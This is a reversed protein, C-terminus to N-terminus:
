SAVTGRKYSEKESTPSQAAPEVSERLARLGRRAREVPGLCENISNTGHNTGQVSETTGQVSGTPGADQWREKKM